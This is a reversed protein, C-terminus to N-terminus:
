VDYSDLLRRIVAAVKPQLLLAAFQGLDIGGCYVEDWESLGKGRPAKFEFLSWRM